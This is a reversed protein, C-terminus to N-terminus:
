CLEAGLIVMFKFWCQELVTEYSCMELSIHYYIVEITLQLCAHFLNSIACFDEGSGRLALFKLKARGQCSFHFFICRFFRSM